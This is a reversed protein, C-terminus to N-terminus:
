GTKVVASIPVTIVLNHQSLEISLGLGISKDTLPAPHVMMVVGTTGSPFTRGGERHNRNLVVSDFEQVVVM